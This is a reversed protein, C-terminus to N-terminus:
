FTLVNQKSVMNVDPYTLTNGWHMHSIMISLYTILVCVCLSLCNGTSPVGDPAGCTNSPQATYSPPSAVRRQCNCVLQQPSIHLPGSLVATYHKLNVVNTHHKRCHHITTRSGDYTTYLVNGSLGCLPDIRKQYDVATHLLGAQVYSWLITYYHNFWRRTM